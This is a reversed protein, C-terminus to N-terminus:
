RGASSANGGTCGQDVFAAKVNEGTAQQVERLLEGLQAREQENAATVKLGLLHGFTDVAVHVKSGKAGSAATTVPARAAEGARRNCPAGTWSWRRPTHRRALTM